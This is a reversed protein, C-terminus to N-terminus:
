EDGDRGHNIHYENEEDKLKRWAKAEGEELFHKSKIKGELNTFSAVWRDRDGRYRVGTTGSTNDSRKKLNRMNIKHPVDRLNSILNNLPNGDQHDLSSDPWYGYHLFWVVRHSYLLKGKIRFQRCNLHKNIGGCEEGIKVKYGLRKKWFLKGTSEEYHIYEKILEDLDSV